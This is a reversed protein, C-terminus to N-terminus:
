KKKNYPHKKGGYRAIFANIDFKRKCGDYNMFRSFFNTSVSRMIFVYFIRIGCEFATFQVELYGSEMNLGNDSNNTTQHKSSKKYVIAEDLGNLLWVTPKPDELYRVLDPIRIIVTYFSFVGRFFALLFDRNQIM